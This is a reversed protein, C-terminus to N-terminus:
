RVALGGNLSSLDNSLGILFLIGILVVGVAGAREL